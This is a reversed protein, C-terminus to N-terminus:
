TTFQKMPREPSMLEPPAEPSLIEQQGPVRVQESVLEAFEDSVQMQTAPTEGM